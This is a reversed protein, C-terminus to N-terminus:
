HDRKGGRHRLGDPRGARGPGGAPFTRASYPRLLHHCVLTATGFGVAHVFQDYRLVVPILQLNYLVEGGVRLNGRVHAAAGVRDSGSSSPTLSFRRSNGSSGRRSPSSWAPMSSSSMTRGQLAVITFVSIYILNVIVVSARAHSWCSDTREIRCDEGLCRGDAAAEVGHVRRRHRLRRADLMAEREIRQWIETM